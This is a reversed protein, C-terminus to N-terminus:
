NEIWFFTDLVRIRQSSHKNYIMKTNHTHTHTNQSDSKKKMNLHDFKNVYQKIEDM